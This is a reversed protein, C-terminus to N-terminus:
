QLPTTIQVVEDDIEDGNNLRFGYPSNEIVDDLNHQITNM